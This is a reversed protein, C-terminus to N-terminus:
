QIIDEIDIQREENKAILSPKVIKHMIMVQIYYSKAAAKNVNNIMKKISARANDKGGENTVFLEWMFDQISVSTRKKDSTIGDIIM